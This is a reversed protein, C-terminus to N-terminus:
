ILYCKLWVRIKADAVDSVAPTQINFNIYIRRQEFDSINRIYM